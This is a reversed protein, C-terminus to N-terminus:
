PQVVGDIVKPAATVVPKVGIYFADASDSPDHTGGTPPQVNALTMSACATSASDGLNKLRIEANLSKVILPTSPNLTMTAGDPISFLPVYRANPTNCEVTANNVPDVCDGPIGSLNGFGNFQLLIPVGAYSGYAPDNPVTYPINQPADFAVITSGNILWMSQQWQQSGTVWTYYSLPNAPECVTGAPTMSPCNMLTFPADFLRGTNIGNQAYMSGQPYQSPQELVLPVATVGSIDELGGADFSYALTNASAASFWQQDTGSAFPSSQTGAQFAALSAANPCQNLCFLALSASGPIVTSQVYYYVSDAVTHPAGTPPINLNGGYSDAWGSIPQNDFADANVTAAPSIPTTVCGNSGCQQTGIVSFTQTSSSWQLQWNQYGSVSPSNTLGTLDAGSSFPINNLSDLTTSQQTWKTLKGGVKALSYSTTNSPRQDTITLGAIPRADAISNLDLGQLNIGWYNAFGYYPTGAYSGVIPFGPHAMDVRSGDNANYTGYQWVSRQANAKTRDFCQDSTGDSRRFNNADYAFNFSPTGVATITGAGATTSTASLAMASNSSSNGTEYQSISSAQSDIFGNFATAGNKIGLYDLRFLGYPQAASPSQTASLRLFVNLANGNDTMSLWVQGIMPDSNSVRAVNLVATAYNTAGAAASSSAKSDCKNMDVLAIYPGANVMSGAGTSGIVCLIMNLSSISDSTSDQVYDNQPDTSYPSASPIGAQASSTLVSVVLTVFAIVKSKM